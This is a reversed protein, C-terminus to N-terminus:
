ILYVSRELCTDEPHMESMLHVLFFVLELVCPRQFFIHHIPFAVFFFKSVTSEPTGSFPQLNEKNARDNTVPSIFRQYPLWQAPKLWKRHLNWYSFNVTLMSTADAANKWRHTLTSLPFDTWIKLHSLTFLTNMYNKHCIIRCHLPLLYEVPQEARSSKRVVM